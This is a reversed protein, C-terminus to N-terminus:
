FTQYTTIIRQLGEFCKLYDIEPIITIRAVTYCQLWRPQKGNQQASRTQTVSKYYMYEFM